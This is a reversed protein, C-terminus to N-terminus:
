LSNEERLEKKLNNFIQADYFQFTKRGAETKVKPLMLLSKNGRTNINHSIYQFRNPLWDM